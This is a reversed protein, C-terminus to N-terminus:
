DKLQDWLKNRIATMEMPAAAGLAVHLADILKLLWRAQKWTLSICITRM